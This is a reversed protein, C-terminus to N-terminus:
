WEKKDQKMGSTIECEKVDWKIMETRQDGQVVSERLM